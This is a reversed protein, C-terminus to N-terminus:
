EVLDFSQTDSNWIYYVGNEDRYLSEVPNFYLGASEVYYYGDETYVPEETQETDTVSEQTTEEQVTEEQPTEETKEETEEEEKSKTFLTSCDVKDIASHEADLFLCVSEGKLQTLMAQYKAMMSIDDYSTYVTNGDQMTMKLMNQDFSSSYPVIEAIKEIVQKTLEDKHAYMAKALAKRQKATLDSLLPFHLITSLYDETINMSTGDICLAYNKNNKIYYGIITKEEVKIKIRGKSKTVNVSDILPIKKIRHEVVFNPLLMLSSSDVDAAKYIEEDSLYYNGQCSLAKVRSDSSCLYVVLSSALLFVISLLYFQKLTLKLRDKVM